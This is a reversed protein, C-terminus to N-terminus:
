KFVEAAGACFAAGHSAFLETVLQHPQIGNPPCHMSVDSRSISIITHQSVIVQENTTDTGVRYVTMGPYLIVGDATRIIKDSNFPM